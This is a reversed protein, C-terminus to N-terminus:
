YYETALLPPYRDTVAPLPPRDTVTTLPLTVTHLPTYRHGVTSEPLPTVTVPRYRLRFSILIKVKHSLQYNSIQYPKNQEPTNQYTTISCLGSNAFM